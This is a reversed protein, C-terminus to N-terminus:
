VTHLYKEFIAYHGVTSLLINQFHSNENSDWTGSRPTWNLVKGIGVELNRIERKKNRVERKWNRMELKGNEM